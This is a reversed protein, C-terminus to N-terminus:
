MKYMYRHARTNWRKNCSWQGKFTLVTKVGVRERACLLVFCFLASKEGESGVNERERQSRTFSLFFSFAGVGVGVGVGAKALSFLSACM